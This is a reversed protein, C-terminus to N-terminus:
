LSNSSKSIDQKVKEEEIETYDKYEYGLMGIEYGEKAIRNVLDPHREAWSASLFFTASKVNHKKLTDLIPEAKEDGWGINFTLAIDKEGKYVAKPGDKSSFVPVQVINGLFLFWATFLATVSILLLQKITKGNLVYFFNM